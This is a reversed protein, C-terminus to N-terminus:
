YQPDAHANRLAVLAVDISRPQLSGRTPVLLVPPRYREGALMRALQKPSPEICTMRCVNVLVQACKRRDCGRTAACSPSHKTTRRTAVQRSRWVREYVRWLVDACPSMHQVDLFVAHRQLALLKLSCVADGFAQLDRFPNCLLVDADLFSGGRRASSNSHLWAWWRGGLWVSHHALTVNWQQLWRPVVDALVGYSPSQRVATPSVFRTCERRLHDLPLM